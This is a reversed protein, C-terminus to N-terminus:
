SFAMDILLYILYLFWKTRHIFRVFLICVANLPSLQAGGKVHVLFYGFESDRHHRRGGGRHCSMIEESHNRRDTDNIAVMIIIISTYITTGYGRNMNTCDVAEERWRLRAMNWDIAEIAEWECSSLLFLTQCSNKKLIYVAVLNRNIRDKESLSGAIKANATKFLGLGM